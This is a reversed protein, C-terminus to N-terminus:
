AKRRRTPVRDGNRGLAKGRRDLDHEIEELVVRAPIPEEGDLLRQIAVATDAEDETFRRSRGIRRLRAATKLLSAEEDHSVAVKTSTSRM